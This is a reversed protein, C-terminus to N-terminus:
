QRTVIPLFIQVGSVGTQLVATDSKSPNAQSTVTVTVTDLDGTVAGQPIHVTVQFTTTGGPNVPGVQAPANVQWTNGGLTITYTDAANNTNLVTVTFSVSNGATGFKTQNAPTVTVWDTQATTTLGASDSQSSNLQSTAKVTVADTNNNLANAPINVTVQFTASAGPAVPGVQAPATTQWSQGTLSITYTDALNNTNTVTLTYVVASGANGAKAATPPTLTVWDTQATTSLLATDSKSPNLQSFAKVTVADTNNNLANAPINVTVQFTASAGPAVPGVQAPATTQWSQGTLSITYSDALNNTNTVTLTYVVANGANGTKAATPPTLTVWDTQATTTLLATASKTGNSQSTAKVTVIDSDGNLASVPVNVAVQFTATAGPAVPDVQAPATTQWSQGTLSITYSDALTNINKLTITYVVTAGPSGFKAEAPPTVTVWDTYITTLVATDSKSSDAQSSVTVTVIDFDGSVVAQPVDVTVQFTTSAGPAVPGVQAPATTQWSQGTLAINYSDATNRTNTVTLTYVATGGANGNQAATPPTVTVWNTQATTTLVASDSRAANARSTVKVTVTDSNGDLANSPINVSVHFTLSAGPAVPGVQLPTTTQWSQGTLSINYNDTTNRTNTVTLTYLIANGANGTKAATPPTVTVWDTQATTTLMAADSKTPNAQSTAKVTVVDTNGDLANAPINVTVQFTSSTGAAVPGVQVPAITQWAQGTLAINYTDALNNTNTVTLNYLVATGAFGTKAATPPTVTVWDTQATTTLVASDSKAANAQSTAKVTVTDTNNNLANAPINVTVQFTTSVGPALPGIQTPATTQWGQGILSINYSGSVNRTNTLTLTYLVSTGANGTKAATPPTVTVWDTQATTTLISTDSKTPNAQSTAKVTVTDSNGDLANIPLNVTVQFTASAGPGVPGVTVPATTQWTQGTLSIAYSDVLNNTNTITVAYQVASGADGTQAATPPTVTVWNTIATTTLAASATKERDGLSAAIVTVTDTNNNLANPPINVTIQVPASQGPNLPGVTTPLASANWGNGEFAFDFSDAVLGTNKVQLNYIVSTGSFGSQAGSVPTLGTGYPTKIGMAPDGFLMFTHMLDSNNGTAFLRLKAEFTAAGLEWYGNEFLSDYFGRQLPDHGTAVGLGTSSFVGAAGKGPTVLFKYTLSDWNPYTWHGDLCTMSLIVPLQAANTLSAINDVFFISEASWRDLSAHGIYNVILTGTLNLTNTIAATALACNSPNFPNCGFDYGSPVGDGDDEYIRLANYNPDPDIYTSIVGESLGIFDGATDPVDDAIFLINEHWDDFSASEYAMIKGVIVALEADTKVPLRAIYLDPMTDDGVITALLNSSDVEGQWPDIKALNPPMYTPPANHYSKTGNGFNKMNWNGSGILTAYLVPSAWNDFTYALFNKIAIPHYIGDNFEAYLDAVDIVAVSYGQAERYDALALTSTMFNAHTILVYDAQVMNEFDPPTYAAIKKPTLIGTNVGAAAYAEQASDTRQFSATYNGAGGSMAVNTVRVPNFPDTVKYVEVSSSTFGSIQYNWTGAQARPFTLADNRAVFERAYTIEFFDFHMSPGQVAADSLLTMGVSNTGELLVSQAVSEDFTHRTAGDWYADDVVTGNLTFRTHHDPSNNIDQNRSSVEVHINAAPGGPALDTLTTTYVKQTNLVQVREWYWVDDSYWEIAYWQISNEAHITEYYYVPVSAGGPTGNVSTMRAGPLASNEMLYYVNDDTYREFYSALDCGSVCMWFWNNPAFSQLGQVNNAKTMVDEYRAELIDGHFKEGFFTVYDGPDFSGDGEGVVEIAVDLGHNVMRFDRPDVNDVDMGAAQLDAYTVRYIGDKDVVLEYRPGLFTYDTPAKIQDHLAESSPAARWARAEEYNILSHELASELGEDYVCDACLAGGVNGSFDLRIQIDGIRAITRQAPNYQFPYVEIRIVRQQRIWADGVIAATPGPFNGDLAYAEPDRITEMEGPTLDDKLPAPSPVPPLDFYGPLVDGPSASVSLEVEAEPPVGILLSIIPVSPSGPTQTTTTEGGISIVEYDGGDINKSEISYAPAGIDITLGTADSLVPYPSDDSVPATAATASEQAPLFGSGASGLLISAALLINIVSQRVM